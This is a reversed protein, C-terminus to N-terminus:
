RVNGVEKVAQVLGFDIQLDVEPMGVMQDLDSLTVFPLNIELSM